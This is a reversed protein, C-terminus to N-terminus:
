AYLGMAKACEVCLRMEDGGENDSAAMIAQNLHCQVCVMADDQSEPTPDPDGPIQAPESDVSADDARTQGAMGLGAELVAWPFKPGPDKHNNAGGLKGKHLPDPVECHGIIHERDLVIDVYKDKLVLILECLADLMPKPFHARELYGELEIGISERNVKANGAHWATDGDAVFQRVRGEFSISYHASAHAAPNAFWAATGNDSGQETHIVVMSIQHGGRGPTYNSSAVKSKIIDM